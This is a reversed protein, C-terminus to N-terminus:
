QHWQNMVDVNQLYSFIMHVSSYLIICDDYQPSHMVHCFALTASLETVAVQNRAQKALPEHLLSDSTTLTNILKKNPTYSMWFIFTQWTRNLNYNRRSGLEFHTYCNDAAPVIKDTISKSATQEWSEEGILRLHLWANEGAFWHKGHLNEWQM